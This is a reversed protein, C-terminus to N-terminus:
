KNEGKKLVAAVMMDYAKDRDATNDFYMVKTESYNKMTVIINDDSSSSFAIIQSMDVVRRGPLVLWVILVLFSLFQKMFGGVKYKSGIEKSL